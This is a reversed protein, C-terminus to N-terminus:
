RTAPVFETRGAHWAASTIADGENGGIGTTERGECIRDIRGDLNCCVQVYAALLDTLATAAGRYPVHVM